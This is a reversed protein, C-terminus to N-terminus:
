ADFLFFYELPLLLIKNDKDYLLSGNTILIGYDACVRNMTSLIQSTTKKNWGIEIVIKKEGDQWIFDAGNEYPDISINVGVKGFFKQYLYSGFYDELLKGKYKTEISASDVTNLLTARISPSSFLYKSPKRVKRAVTSSYPYFRILMESKELVDMVLLLTKINIHGINEAIKNLSIIDSSAILYLIAPIQYIVDRTFQRLNAIDSMIIRDIAQNLTKYIREKDRIQITCPFTYYKLYNLIEFKDLEQWFFLVKEEYAKAEYYFKEPDIWLLNGQNLSQNIVIPVQMWKESKKQFKSLFIFEKFVLPFLREITCRRATDAALNLSIASSGTSVIFVNKSRDFLSKLAFQWNEDYHVEDILLLLPKDLHSFSVGLIEEFSDLIEYLNSNLKSKVEDISVYLISKEIKNRFSFFLQALITTKGVGRLGPMVIWRLNSESNIFQTIYSELKYFLQRHPFLSGSEDKIYLQLQGYESHLQNNVYQKIIEQKM